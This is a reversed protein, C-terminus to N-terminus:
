SLLIYLAWTSTVAGEELLTGSKFLTEEDLQHMYGM